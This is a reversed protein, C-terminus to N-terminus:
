EKKVQFRGNRIAEMVKDVEADGPRSQKYDQLKALAKDKDGLSLYTMGLAYVADVVGAGAAKELHPLAERPKGSGALFVGYLHQGRIEDPAIALLKQFLADAQEAAGAVDLNHGMSNVQAARLLLEPHPNPGNVLMGLMGSLTVADQTARRRDDDSDFRPPYSRAHASLDKLVRELYAADLGHKRGTPTETTTLILKLDHSGYPAASATSALLLVLVATLLRTM